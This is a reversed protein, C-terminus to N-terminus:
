CGNLGGVKRGQVPARYSAQGFQNVQGMDLIVHNFSKTCYIPCGVKQGPLLHDYPLLSM